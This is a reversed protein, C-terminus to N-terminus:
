LFYKKGNTPCIRIRANSTRMISELTEGQVGVLGSVKDQRVCVAGHIPRNKTDPEEFLDFSEADMRQYFLAEQFKRREIKRLRYTNELKAETTNTKEDSVATNDEASSASSDDRCSPFSHEVSDSASASSCSISMDVFHDLDTASNNPFSEDSSDKNAFNEDDHVATEKESYEMAKSLYNAKKSKGTTIKKQIRRTSKRFSFVALSSYIKKIVFRDGLIFVWAGAKLFRTLLCM